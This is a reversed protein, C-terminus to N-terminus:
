EVTVSKALNRPQDVDTGKMHATYYALLQIPVTYLLPIIFYHVDAMVVISLSTFDKTQIKIKEAGQGNTFVIVKAGRALIEQINSLTKEFWEDMPAIVVVPMSPDILAIPGHKLEGAPYGEAHIYSIEKLKLAGELAIPYNMGRGLYLTHQVQTLSSALQHYVGDNRLLASIVGPLKAFQDVCEQVASRALVGRSEGFYLCLAALATLQATFAKTSAVGIEPGAMTQVVYDAQRAISSEAVNVIALTKEHNEKVLLMAYLTDITEGSQTICITLTDHTFVPKRYRFESAIDVDVPIRAWMEFWYKAVLGAYFSTGCALIRIRSFAHPPISRLVDHYSADEVSILSQLTDSITLPQEFIEKLMYHSYDGKSIANHTIFTQRIPRQVNDGHENYITMHAKGDRVELAALDGEDLYVLGNVWSALAIADSGIFAETDTTAVALPSGHRAAILLNNHNKFLFVLSFAGRICGLVHQVASLPPKGQKLQDSVIHMVVETDTHSTFVYGKKILDDKLTAFNEIIGNHVVAVNEDAMPHANEEVVRGHTAWRTHGIGINGPIPSKEVRDMLNVLKGEARQRQIHCDASLTAIGTSDYGRYELRKLGELLRATVDAQGIIGIIGCM